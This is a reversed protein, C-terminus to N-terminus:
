SIMIEIHVMLGFWFQHWKAHIFNILVSVYCMCRLSICLCGVVSRFSNQSLEELYSLFLDYPLESQGLSVVETPPGLITGGQINCCLM